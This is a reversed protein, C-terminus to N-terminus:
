QITAQVARSCMQSYEHAGVTAEFNFVASDIDDGIFELIVNDNDDLVAGYYCDKEEHFYVDAVYGRCEIYM